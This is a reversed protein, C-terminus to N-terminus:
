EIDQQFNKGYSISIINQAQLIFEEFQTFSKELSIAHYLPTKKIQLSQFFSKELSALFFEFVTELYIKEDVKEDFFAKNEKIEAYYENLM